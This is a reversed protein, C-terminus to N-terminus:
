VKYVELTTMIESLSSPEANKELNFLDDLERLVWHKCWTTFCLVREGEVIYFNTRDSYRRKYVKM